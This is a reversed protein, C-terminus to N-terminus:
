NINRQIDVLLDVVFIFSLITNIGRSSYAALPCAWQQFHIDLIPRTHNGEAGEVKVLVKEKRKKEKRKKEKRKKEKRKKEKRERSTKRVPFM